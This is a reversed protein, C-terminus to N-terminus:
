FLDVPNGVFGNLGTSKAPLLPPPVMHKVATAGRYRKPKGDHNQIVYGTM